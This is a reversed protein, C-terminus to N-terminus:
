IQGEFWNATSRLGEELSTRPQWDLEEIARSVDPQRRKPENEYPLPEYALDSDTEMVSRVTNALQTITIEDTSGINVVEGALGATRMLARLGRVQDTVYTFSRTQTGDGYITLPRGRLAQTIFNPIVRGDDPRMRPGYTNFIRVTRVDLDYQDAFVATLMEGFRKSVDYCARKGRPNVNGNYEEPQPHMEPNGYIESTSAFVVRADVKKAFEFVNQTGQSNTTAIDLPFADFEPPSARSALHYIRDLQSIEISNSRLATEIDERVDAEIFIFQDRDIFRNINSYRGSSVNDLCVVQYGDSLLSECLHNGIFGAGGTVLITKM